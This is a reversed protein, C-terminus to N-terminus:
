AWFQWWPRTPPTVVQATELIKMAAEVDAQARRLSEVDPSHSNKLVIFNRVSYYGPYAPWDLAALIPRADPWPRGDWLVEIGDKNGDVQPVFVRMWHTVHEEDARSTVLSKITPALSQPCLSAPDVNPLKRGPAPSVEVGYNGIFVKWRRGGLEWTDVDVHGREERGFFAALIVHLSNLAFKRLASQAAEDVDTGTSAFSETLLRGDPLSLQVHVAATVTEGCVFPKPDGLGRVSILAGDVVIWGGDLRCDLGHSRLADLLFANVDIAM